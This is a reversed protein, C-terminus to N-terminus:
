EFDWVETDPWEKLVRGQKDIYALWSEGNRTIGVLALGDMFVGGSAFQPQIVMKGNHDIFGWLNGVRVAALGESFINADKYQCPIVTEGRKNIFGYKDDAWNTGANVLAVGESFHIVNQYKLAIVERGQLDIFGYKNNFSVDALGDCFERANSYNCDIVITGSKDIYGYKGNMRVVARGESFNMAYDFQPPIVMKGTKDIYGYKGNEYDLQVFALGEHFEGAYGFRASIVMKGTKDIYGCKGGFEPGIVVMALGETFDNTGGYTPKVIYKGTKDILGWKDGQRVWAVGEQFPRVGDWQPRIVTKGTRDMYGEKGNESFDFLVDNDGNAPVMFTFPQENPAITSGDKCLQYSIKGQVTFAKDTARVITQSFIVEDKFYAVAVGFEDDFEKIPKPEDVKGLRLYDQFDNFTFEIPIPGNPDSQQSYIVWGKNLSLRFQLEVVKDSVEVVKFKWIAPNLMQAMATGGLVLALLLIALRKM